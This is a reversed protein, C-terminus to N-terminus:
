SRVELDLCRFIPDVVSTWLTALVRRFIDEDDGGTALRRMSRDEHARPHATNALKQMKDVLEKATDLSFQPIPVHLDKETSRLVLAACGSKSANLIVVPGNAAATQLTALRKTRLFDKFGNLKRVAELGALWQENLRRLKNSEQEVTLAIDPTDSINRSKTRFSGQELARSIDKLKQALEPAELTLESLPNRLQLVQSWFVARGEELLEVAMGFKGSRIACAAADRALGDTGSTLVHQRSQLDLGVALRPLFGIAAIYAEMASDHNGSDACGAWSQAAFFRQSIPASECKVANRFADVADRLDDSQKTRLFQQNLLNGLSHSVVCTDPHMPTLTQSTERCIVIAEDLDEVQRSNFFRRELTRALNFLKTSRVPHSSPMMDLIERQLSISKDLAPLQHTHNYLETLCNSLSNLVNPRDPHSPPLQDLVESPLSIAEDLFVVEGSHHFRDCLIDALATLAPFRLRPQDQVLTLAKRIFKIAEDLDECQDRASGSYREHLANALTMLLTAQDENDTLGHSQILYKRQLSVAEDIDSLQGSHETQRLLSKCLTNVSFSQRADVQPLLDLAERNLSIAEAQDTSQGSFEYRSHLCAALNTFIVPRDCEPLTLSERLLSIAENLTPVEGSELFLKYLTTALINLANARRPDNLPQLDLAEKYLSIAGDADTRQKLHQFRTMLDEALRDLIHDPPQLTLAERRLSLAQDLDLLQGTHHFRCSLSDAINNLVIWRERHPVPVLSLAEQHKSLAEDIDSVSNSHHFRRHLAFGLHSLSGPRNCDEPHLLSLSERHLVIAEELDALQDTHDFRSKMAKALADLLTPQAPYAGLAQQLQSIAEELDSLQDSREFQALLTESLTGLLCHQRPDDHPLLDLAERNLSIAEALDARDGSINFRSQVCTALTILTTSRDSQSLALSKHFLLIAEDVAPLQESEQFLVFLTTALAYLMSSRKRHELPLLELADRHLSVAEEIDARHDTQRFRCILIKALHSLVGQREDHPAPVLSLAKRYQLVADDLDSLNDSHHFQSHLASGLQRLSQLMNAEHLDALVVTEDVNSEKALASVLTFFDSDSVSDPHEGPQL